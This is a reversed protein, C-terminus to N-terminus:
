FIPYSRLRTQIIQLSYDQPSVFFFKKKFGYLFMMLMELKTTNANIAWSHHMKSFICIQLMNKFKTFNFFVSREPTYMQNKKRASGLIWAQFIQFLKLNNEFYKHMGPKSAMQPQIKLSCGRFKAIMKSLKAALMSFTLCVETHCITGFNQNIQSQYREKQM